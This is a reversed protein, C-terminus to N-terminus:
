SEKHKLSQNSGEGKNVFSIQIIQDTGKKYTYFYDVQPEDKFTVVVANREDNRGIDVVSTEEIDTDTDYGKEELYLFINDILVGEEQNKIFLRIGTILVIASIVILFKYIKKQIIVVGIKKNCNM